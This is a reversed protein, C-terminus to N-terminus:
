IWNHSSVLLNFILTSISPADNKATINENIRMKTAIVQKRDDTENLMPTGTLALYSESFTTLPAPLARSHLVTTVPFVRAKDQFKGFSELAEWRLNDLSFHTISPKWMYVFRRRLDIVIIIWQPTTDNMASHNSHIRINM